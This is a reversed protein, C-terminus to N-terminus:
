RLYCSTDMYSQKSTQRCEAINLLTRSPWHYAEVSMWPTKGCLQCVFLCVVSETDGPTHRICRIGFKVMPCSRLWDRGENEWGTEHLNLKLRNDLIRPEEFSRKVFIRYANRVDGTWVV